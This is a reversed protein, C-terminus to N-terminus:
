EPNGEAHSGQDAGRGYVVHDFSPRPPAAYGGPQLAAAYRGPRPSVAGAGSSPAAVMSSSPPETPGGPAPTHASELPRPLAASAAPRAEARAASSRLATEREIMKEALSEPLCSAGIHSPVQLARMDHATLASVGSVPFGLLQDVFEKRQGFSSSRARHAAATVIHGTAHERLDAPNAEAAHRHATEAARLFHAHTALAARIVSADQTQSM